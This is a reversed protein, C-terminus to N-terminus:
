LEEHTSGTFLQRVLQALPTQFVKTLQSIGRDFFTNPSKLISLSISGLENALVPDKVHDIVNLVDYSPPERRQLVKASRFLAARTKQNEKVRMLKSEDICTYDLQAKSTRWYYGNYDCPHIESVINVLTNLNFSCERQAHCIELIYRPIIELGKCMDFKQKARDKYLSSRIVLMTENDNNVISAGIHMLRLNLDYFFDLSDDVGSVDDIHDTVMFPQTSAPDRCSGYQCDGRISETSNKLMSFTARNLYLIQGGPCSFERKQDEFLVEHNEFSDHSPLCKYTVQIQPELGWQYLPSCDHMFLARLNPNVLHCTRLGNCRETIDTLISKEANLLDQCSNLFKLTSSQELLSSKEQDELSLEDAISLLKKLRIDCIATLDGSLKQSNNIETKQSPRDELSVVLIKEKRDCNLFLPRNQLVNVRTDPNNLNTESHELQEVDSGLHKKPPQYESSCLTTSLTNRILQDARPDDASVLEATCPINNAILLLAILTLSSLLRQIALIFDLNKIQM